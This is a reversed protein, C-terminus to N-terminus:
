FPSFINKKKKLIHNESILTGFLLMLVDLVLMGVVV